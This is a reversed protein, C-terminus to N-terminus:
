DDSMSHIFILMFTWGIIKCFISDYHLKSLKQSFIMCDDVSRITGAHTDQVM